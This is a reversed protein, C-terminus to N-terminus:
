PNALESPLVQDTLLRRFTATPDGTANILDRGTTYTFPYSRYLAHTCFSFLKAAREPALLGYTQIYDITAAMDLRGTHYLLAANAAVYRLDASAAEIRLLQGALDPEPSLGAAPLLVAVNWEHADGEPFIMDLATTAIGEAIVAAPSHLLLAAQEGYGRQRYLGIEKLTSETHHGPYGEHAFTSLLQHAYLPLDTNFEILSRGQGLFWNYASWPQGATLRIAVGEDPPLTVLAATRRRTEIRALELLDIARDVTTVFRNQWAAMRAALNGGAPGPLADDLLRHAAEFRQESVLQPHIDYIRHVEEPYDFSEGALMRVTTEIARLVVSLYVARAPDALPIRDELAAVDSLLVAPPRLPAADVEPRLDEPGLYADVYGPIHKDIELTLRLYARGFDDLPPM